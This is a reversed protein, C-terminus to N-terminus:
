NFQVDNLKKMNPATTIHVREGALRLATAARTLVAKWCGMRIVFSRAQM